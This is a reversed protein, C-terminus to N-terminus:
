HYGFARIWKELYGLGQQTSDSIKADPNPLGNISNHYKDKIEKLEDLNEGLTYNSINDIEKRRVRLFHRKLDDEDFYDPIVKDPNGNTIEQCVDCDCMLEPNSQFIYQAKGLSLFNHFQQIYYRKPVGGASGPSRESDKHETYLIGHSIGELGFHGTLMFLYGGYLAETSVGEENLGRILQILTQIEEISVKRQHFDDPWLLVKDFNSYDDVIRDIDDFLPKLNTSHHLVAATTNDPFTSRTIRACKLSFEYWPDQTDNFRFYPAVIFGPDTPDTNEYRKTYKSAKSTKSKESVFDLQFNGINKCLEDAPPLDEIQFGEDKNLDNLTPVLDEHYIDWMKQVSVRVVEGEDEKEVIHDIKQNQFIYTMPDIYYRKDPLSTIFVSTSPAQWALINAPIVLGEYFQKQERILEINKHMGFRLNIEM